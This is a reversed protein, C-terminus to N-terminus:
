AEAEYSTKRSFSICLGKYSDSGCVGGDGNLAMAECGGRCDPAGEADRRWSEM